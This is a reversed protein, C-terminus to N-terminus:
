SSTGQCQANLRSYQPMCQARQPTAYCHAASRWCQQRGLGAGAADDNDSCSGYRPTRTREPKRTIGACLVSATRNARQLHAHGGGWKGREVCACSHIWRQTCRMQSCRCAGLHASSRAASCATHRVAQCVGEHPILEQWLQAAVDLWCPPPLPGAARHPCLRIQWRCYAFCRLAVCRLALESEM